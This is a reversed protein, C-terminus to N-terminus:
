LDSSLESVPPILLNSHVLLCLLSLYTRNEGARPNSVPPLRLPLIPPSLSSPGFGGGERSIKTLSPQEATAASSRPAPPPPRTKCVGASARICSMCEQACSKLRSTGNRKFVPSLRPDLKWESLVKGLLGRKLQVGATCTSHSPRPHLYLSNRHLEQKMPSTHM